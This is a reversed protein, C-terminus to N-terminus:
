RPLPMCGVNGGAPRTTSGPTRSRSRRRHRGGGADVGRREGTFDGTRRGTLYLNGFVADGSRSRFGSSATWRRTIRGPVGVSRPRRAIRRLRIPTPDAILAGLLGGRPAPFRDRGRHRLRAGEYVFQELGDGHPNIVGLAGYRADVLVCAAHVMQRLVVPLSLEGVIARNLSM